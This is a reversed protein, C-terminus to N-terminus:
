HSWAPWGGDALSYETTSGLVVKRVALVSISSAMYAIQNGDSSWKPLAKGVNNSSTLQTIPGATMDSKVTTVYIEQNRNRNSAFALKSGDPSWGPTTNVTGPGDIFLKWKPPSFSLDVLWIAYHSSGSLYDISTLALWRGGPSFKAESYSYGQAPVLDLHSPNAAFVCNAYSLTVIRILISYTGNFTGGMNFCIPIAQSGDPQATPTGWDMSDIGGDPPLDDIPLAVYSIPGINAGTSDTVFDAVALCRKQTAPDLDTWGLKFTGDALQPSFACYGGKNPITLTKQGTGNTNTVMIPFITAGSTPIRSQYVIFGPGGPTSGGGKGALAAPRSVCIPILLVLLAALLAVRTLSTRM